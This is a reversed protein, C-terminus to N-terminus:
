KKTDGFLYNIAGKDNESSILARSFTVKKLGKPLVFLDASLDDIHKTKITKLTWASATASKRTAQLAIGQLEPLASARGIVGGAHIDSPFDLCVIEGTNHELARSDARDANSLFSSSTSTSPFVYRVYGLGGQEFHRASTPKKLEMTWLTILVLNAKLWDKYGVQAYEKTDTRFILVDWKPACSILSYGYTLQDLRVADSTAVVKYKGNASTVQELEYGSIKKGSTCLATPANLVIPPLLSILGFHIIFLNRLLLNVRM